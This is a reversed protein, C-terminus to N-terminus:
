DETAEVALARAAAQRAVDPAYGRRMLLGALRGFAKERPLGRLRGARERALADARGEEDVLTEELVAGATEAEVGATALRAAVVRRGEKRRGVAHEALARAFAEDDILGVRELRDLEEIVEDADFGAQLLRRELERRSRQRVALLGLAREHCDKRTPTRISAESRDPGHSRPSM